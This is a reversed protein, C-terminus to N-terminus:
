FGPVCFICCCDFPHNDPDDEYDYPDGVYDAGYTPVDEFTDEREEEMLRRNAAEEEYDREDSFAM